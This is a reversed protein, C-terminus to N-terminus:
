PGGGEGGADQGRKIRRGGASWRMGFSMRSKVEHTDRVLLAFPHELHELVEPHDLADVEPPSHHAALRHALAVPVM